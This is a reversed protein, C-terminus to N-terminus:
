KGERLAYQALSTAALADFNDATTTMDAIEKLADRLRQVEDAPPHTYLKHEGLPLDVYPADISVAHGGSNELHVTLTTVPETHQPAAPAADLLEAWCRSASAKSLWHAYADVMEDTMEVPVLKWETM